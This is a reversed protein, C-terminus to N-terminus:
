AEKTYPILTRVITRLSQLENHFKNSFSEIFIKEINKFDIISSSFIFVVKRQGSQEIDVRTSFEIEAEHKAKIFAALPTVNTEFRYKM